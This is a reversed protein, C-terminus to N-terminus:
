TRLLSPQMELRRLLLFSIRLSGQTNKHTITLIRMVKSLDGVRCTDRSQKTKLRRKIGFNYQTGMDEITSEKISPM